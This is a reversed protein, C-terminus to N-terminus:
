KDYGIEDFYKVVKEAAVKCVLKVVEPSYGACHPTIILNQIVNLCEVIPHKSIQPEGSLVDLGVGGLHGSKLLTLLESEDM